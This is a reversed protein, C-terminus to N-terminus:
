IQISYSTSKYQYFNAKIQSFLYVLDINLNYISLLNFSNIEVQLIDWYKKNIYGIITYILEEELGLKFLSIQSLNANIYGMLWDLFENHSKNPETPTWNIDIYSIMLEELKEEIM